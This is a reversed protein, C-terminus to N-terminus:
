AVDVLVAVWSTANGAHVSHIQASNKKIGNIQISGLPIDLKVPQKIDSLDEGRGLNGHENWGWGCVQRIKSKRDELLVLTHESGTAVQLIKAHSSTGNHISKHEFSVLGINGGSHIPPSLPIGPGTRHIGLQGNSNNGWCLLLSEGEDQEIQLFTTKWNCHPQMTGPAFPPPGDGGLRGGGCTRSIQDVPGIQYKSNDGYIQMYGRETDTMSLITHASGLGVKSGPIFGQHGFDKLLTPRFTLKQSLSLGLQGNRSAGWGYLHYDCSIAVSHRPGSFIRSVTVGEPFEIQNFQARTDDCGLQAYDNSGCALVVRKHVHSDDDADIFLFMSCDWGTAVDFLLWKRDHLLIKSIPYNQHFHYLFMSTDMKQFELKREAKILQGTGDDIMQGDITGLQGKPSAGAFYCTTFPTLDGQMGRILLITHNAGACIQIELELGSEDDDSDVTFPIDFVCQTFVHADEQSGIGLQGQSNSGAGYLLLQKM